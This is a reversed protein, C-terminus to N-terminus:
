RVPSCSGLLWTWAGCGDLDHTDGGRRDGRFGMLHHYAMGLSTMMALWSIRAGYHMALCLAADFVGTVCAGGDGGLAYDAEGCM